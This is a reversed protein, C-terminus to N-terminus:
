DWDQVDSVRVTTGDKLVVCPTGRVTKSHSAKQWKGGVKVKANHAPDKNSVDSNETLLRNAAQICKSRGCTGMGSRSRRRDCGEICCRNGPKQEGAHYKRAM